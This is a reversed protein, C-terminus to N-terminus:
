SLNTKKKQTTFKITLKPKEIALLYKKYEEKTQSGQLGKLNRKLYLQVDLYVFIM